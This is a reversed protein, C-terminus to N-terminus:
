STGHLYGTLKNDKSNAITAADQIDQEANEIAVAEAEAAAAEAAKAAEADVVAKDQVAAADDAHMTANAMNKAIGMAKEYTSIASDHGSEQISNKLEEACISNKAAYSNVLIDLVEESVTVMGEENAIPEQVIDGPELSAKVASVVDAAMNKFVDQMNQMMESDMQTNSLGAEDAKANAKAEEEAAKKEALEKAANEAAKKEEETMNDSRNNSKENNLRVREDRPMNTLAWHEPILNKQIVKGNSKFLNSGYQLSGGWLEKNVVKDIADKDKIIIIGKVCKESDSWWADAIQGDPIIEDGYSDADIDQHRIVIDLAKLSNLFEPKKLESEHVEHIGAYSPDAVDAESYFLEGAAFIVTELRAYGTRDDISVKKNTSFGNKLSLEATSFFKESEKPKNNKVAILQAM